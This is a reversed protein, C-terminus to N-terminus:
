KKLKIFRNFYLFEDADNRFNKKGHKHIDSFDLLLSRSIVTEVNIFSHLEVVFITSGFIMMMQIERKLKM